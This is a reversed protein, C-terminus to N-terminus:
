QLVYRPTFGYGPWYDWGVLVWQPQRYVPQPVYRDVYVVQPPPCKCPVDAPKRTENRRFRNFWERDTSDDASQGFATGCTLLIALTLLRTM